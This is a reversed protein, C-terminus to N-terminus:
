RNNSDNDKTHKLFREMLFRNTIARNIQKGIELSIGEVEEDSLEKKEQTKVFSLSKSYQYFAKAEKSKTDIIITEM